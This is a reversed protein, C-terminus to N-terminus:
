IVGQPLVAAYTRDHVPGDGDDGDCQERERRDGAPDRARRDRGRHDEGGDPQEDARLRQPEDIDAGAPSVTLSSASAVSARTRNPSAERISTRASRPSNDTGSRRSPM